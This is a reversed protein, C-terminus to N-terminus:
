NRPVAALATSLALTLVGSLVANYLPVKWNWVIGQTTDSSLLPSFLFSVGGVVVSVILAWLAALSLVRRWWAWTHKTPKVPAATPESAQDALAGAKGGGVFDLPPMPRGVIDITRAAMAADDGVSSSVISALTAASASSGQTGTATAPAISAASNSPSNASLVATFM